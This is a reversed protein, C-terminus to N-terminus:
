PESKQGRRLFEMIVGAAAFALNKEVDRFAEPLTAGAPTICRCEAIGAEALNVGASVAGGLAVAYKGLKKALRGVYAPIKGFDTQSDIRGEGTFVLDAAGIAEELGMRNGIWEAGGVPAAGLFAACGAGAGGAAGAGPIEAVDVGLDREVIRAWRALNKELVEVQAPAAGKQPGFVRAAGQPGLLPNRVDALAVFRATGLRRDSRAVSIKELFGLGGGGPPIPAANEDRLDFGLASAFGCGADVTASGGLGIVVQRCGAELARLILTGTGFTSAVMPNYERPGNLRALGSAQALEIVALDGAKLWRARVPRALVDFTNEELLDGGLCNVCVDLLGDGGDSLPILTLAADPCASRVGEAIARGVRSASLCGKFSNPAIVINMIVGSSVSLVGFVGHLALSRRAALPFRVHISFSDLLTEIKREDEM